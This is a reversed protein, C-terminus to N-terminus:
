QWSYGGTDFGDLQGSRARAETTPDSPDDRDEPELEATAKWQDLKDEAKDELYVHRDGDENGGRIQQSYKLHAESAAQYATAQQLLDPLESDTTPMDQSGVKYGTANAWWSQVTDTAEKIETSWDPDDQGVKLRLRDRVMDTTTWHDSSVSTIEPTM